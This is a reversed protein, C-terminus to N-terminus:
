SEILHEGTPALKEINIILLKLLEVVCKSFINKFEDLSVCKLYKTVEFLLKAKESLDVKKAVHELTAITKELVNCSEVIPISNLVKAAYSMKIYENELEVFHTTQKIL